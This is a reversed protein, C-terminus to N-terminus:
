SRSCARARPAKVSFPSSALAAALSPLQPSKIRIGARAELLEAVRALEASM